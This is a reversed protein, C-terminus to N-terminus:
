VNAHEEKVKYQYAQAIKQRGRQLRSKVTSEKMDLIEAIDKATFGELYYLFLITRYKEDLPALVQNWEAAAYDEEYFPTEPLHDSFNVLKRQNLIDKCKNILIRTMWTKFYKDQRLSQLNEYCSLITEQIADAADEDNGLYSRAVKYMSQTQMDMLRCFADPDGKKARRILHETMHKGRQTELRNPNKHKQINSTCFTLFSAFDLCLKIVVFFYILVINVSHLM